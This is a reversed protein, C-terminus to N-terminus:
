FCLELVGDLFMSLLHSQANCARVFLYNTDNINAFQVLTANTVGAELKGLADVYLRRLFSTVVIFRYVTFL